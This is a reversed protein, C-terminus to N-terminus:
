LPRHVFLAVQSEKLQFPVEGQTTLNKIQFGLSSSWKKITLPPSLKFGMMNGQWQKSEMLPSYNTTSMLPHAYFFNGKWPSKFKLKFSAELRFWTSALEFGYL